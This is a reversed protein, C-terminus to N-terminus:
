DLNRIDFYFLSNRANQNRRQRNLRALYLRKVDELSDADNPSLDWRIAKFRPLRLTYGAKTRKNIQIEDFELEVVIGPKISLTSGFREHILPKIAKNLKKLEDDTYGGYAKGIPIFQESYSPNNQVSIGLTFDSYFGGRKGSGAHAYMIVTDLSGGPKKIKLWTKKRQGYEYFSDKKKLMLGENGNLLAEDFLLNIHESSQIEFQRSLKIDYKLCIHELISRRKNLPLNFTTYDNEYLIDYAIFDVPFDLQLKDTPKKVGMRKQLHQFPYITDDKFVCIEGDLVIPSLQMTKFRKCIDPFADSVDKLDRSFLKVVDKNVHLQCRMGDFKEEAIYKEICEIDSPEAPTALMFSLPHFLRFLAENLRKEITLQAVKELSGTIMYAYRVDEQNANFALSLANIISKTDFGIRLSGQGIIRIFYKIEVPSMMAWLKELHEEKNARKSLSELKIFASEIQQLSLSIPNRKQIAIPLNDMLKEITESSSGTAIRCPKFVLDYDIECFNSACMAITRHGISAKRGSITSFAGEGIFRCALVIASTDNLSELYNAFLATKKNSGRSEAIRQVMSCFTFFSNVTSMKNRKTM